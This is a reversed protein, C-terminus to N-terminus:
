TSINGSAGPAYPCGGLGAFASDFHVIGCQLAAVVNALGMGRTNHLHLNWRLEPYKRIFHGCVKEILVPNAMGTTDSLSLETIGLDILVSVVMELRELPIKGEFPCGFATSVAASVIIGHAEALQCCDSFGELTEKTTRKFNNLNHTDSSSVTIKLQPVGANVARQVGKENTVLARYCVGDEQTLLAFMDDTNAVAPVAKPHVFSGIEINKIGSAILQQTLSAKQQATMLKTENQLGDRLGVECLYVQKPYSM